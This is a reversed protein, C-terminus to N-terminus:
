YGIEQYSSENVEVLENNQTILDDVERKAEKYYYEIASIHEQSNYFLKSLVEIIVKNM